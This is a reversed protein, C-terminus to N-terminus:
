GGAEKELEAFSMFCGTLHLHLHPPKALVGRCIVLSVKVLPGGGRRRSGREESDAADVFVCGDSVEEGGEDLRAGASFGCLLADRKKEQRKIWCHCSLCLRFHAVLPFLQQQTKSPNEAVRCDETLRHSRM